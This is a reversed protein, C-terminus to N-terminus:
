VAGAAAASDRTAGARHRSWGLLVVALLLWAATLAFPALFSVVLGFLVLAGVARPVARDRLLAIGELLVGLYLGLVTVELMMVLGPLDGRGLLGGHVVAAVTIALHGAMATVLLVAAVTGLRGQNPRRRAWLALLALPILAYYQMVTLRAVWQEPEPGGRAMRQVMLTHVDALVAGLVLVALVVYLPVTSLRAAARDLLSSM